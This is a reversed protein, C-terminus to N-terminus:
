IRHRRPDSELYSNEMNEIKVNIFNLAGGRDRPLVCDFNITNIVHRGYYITNEEILEITKIMEDFIEKETALQFIGNEEDESLKTGENAELTTPALGMPKVANILEANKVANEIGKGRGAAGYM